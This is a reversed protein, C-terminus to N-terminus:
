IHILSLREQGTALDLAYLSHDLSAIYVTDSIVLPTAWVRGAAAFPREWVPAGDEKRFTYVMGDSNGIVFTSDTLAGAAVFEGGGVTAKWLQQGTQSNLARLVGKSQAFFGSGTREYSTVFLTEELLTVTYFPGYERMDPEAPFLWLVAGSEADLARVQELDAAYVVGEHVVLGTWTTAHVGGGCGSLTSVVLLLGVIAPVPGYWPKKKSM